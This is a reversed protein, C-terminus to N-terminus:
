GAGKEINVKFGKKVLAATVAPSVAVRKENAWKEKPVGITLNKYPVGKIAEVPKGDKQLLKVSKSFLRIPHCTSFAVTRSGGLTCLRIVGQSM